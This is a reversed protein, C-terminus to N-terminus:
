GPEGERPEREAHRRFVALLYYQDPFAHEFVRDAGVRAAFRDTWHAASGRRDRVRQYHERFDPDAFIEAEIRIWSGFETNEPLPEQPNGLASLVLVVFEPEQDLVYSPDYRKYLLPGPSKAIFRDTLGTIDLIRQQHCYYGVIGIDMIAITDGPRGVDDRIWAALAHHSRAYGDARLNLHDALERREGHHLAGQCALLVVAVVPGLVKFRLLWPTAMSFWGITVTAALAPLYPVSFRWGPMWDTGVIFPLFGGVLAVGVMPLAPRLARGARWWGALGIAVGLLGLFPALAGQRVYSWATEGFFGEAKAFYTNPLLEGDYALFRFVLQVAVVLLVVAADLATPRLAQLVPPGASRERSRPLTAALSSACYVLFVAVGEPRTLVAAAWAIGAGRWRPALRGLLGLYIGLTVLMAFLSTELGSTSNVAFGPFIAVLGAALAGVLPGYRSPLASEAVLTRCILFVFVLAAAGAAVGLAKAGVPVAHEGGIAYVAAMLLMHLFNTYGEVHEGVNFFPGLGSALFRSYRFTIFADDNVHRLYLVAHFAYIGLAIPLGIRSVVAPPGSERPARDDPRHETV